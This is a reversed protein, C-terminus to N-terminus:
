RLPFLLYAGLAFWTNKKINFIWSLKEPFEDAENLNSLFKSFLCRNLM